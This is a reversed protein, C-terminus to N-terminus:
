KDKQQLSRKNLYPALKEAPIFEARYSEIKNSKLKWLVTGQLNTLIVTKHLSACILLSTDNVFYSSGMRPTFLEPPLWVNLVPQAQKSHENLTFALSRSRKNPAGNDFGMLWGKNSLHASHVQDFVAGPPIEFDGSRGLKWIINGNRADVKWIQSKSYFDNNYFSILYNGDKDFALSNAHTWDKKRQVISDDSLPDMADFVTWKWIQRGQRDLVLIGDGTVTDQASGGKNLLNFVRKERCLTVMQNKSNLLIEHHIIHQFDNQLKNLCLLTDQGVSLEVISNGYGAYKEITGTICLFSHEKTFHVVKFGAAPSHYSWVINGKVDLVFISGPKVRQYLLIYGKQFVAPLISPDACEIWFSDKIGTTDAGITKHASLVPLAPTTEVRGALLILITIIKFTARMTFNLANECAIKM